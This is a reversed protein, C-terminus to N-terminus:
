RGPLMGGTGVTISTASITFSIYETGPTYTGDSYLGYVYTGTTTGGLYVSYSGGNALEPSSFLISEYQKTSRFTLVTEGSATQINVLTNAQQPSSFKVLV